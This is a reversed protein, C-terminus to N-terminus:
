NKGLSGVISGEGVGRTSVVTGPRRDVRQEPQFEAGGESITRMPCQAKRHGVRGCRFCQGMFQLCRGVHRRGCLSCLPAGVIPSVQSWGGFSTSSRGSDHPGFRSKKGM